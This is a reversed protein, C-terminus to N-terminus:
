AGKQKPKIKGKGAIKNFEQLLDKRKFIIHLNGNKFWKLKFYETEAQWKEKKNAEKMATLLDGPYKNVGKGDLMSFINDLKQIDDEYGYKVHSSKGGYDLEMVWQKIVKEGIEFKSKENTKLRNWASPQLWKATEEVMEAFLDRLGGYVGSCFTLISEQTIEPINGDEVQKYLAEKKKRSMYSPLEMLRIIRQWCQKKIGKKLDEADYSSFEYPYFSSYYTEREAYAINLLKNAQSIAGVAQDTLECARQYARAMARATPRPILGKEEM